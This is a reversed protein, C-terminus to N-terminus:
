NLGEIRIKPIKNKGTQDKINKNKIKKRLGKTFGKKIKLKTM